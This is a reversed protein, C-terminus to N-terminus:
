ELGLSRDRSTGLLNSVVKKLTQKSKSVFPNVM